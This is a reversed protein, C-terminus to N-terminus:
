VFPSWANEENYSRLVRVYINSLIYCVFYILLFILVSDHQQFIDRSQLNVGKTAIGSVSSAALVCTTFATISLVVRFISESVSACQLTMINSISQLNAICTALQWRTDNASVAIQRCNDEDHPLEMWRSVRWPQWWDHDATSHSTHLSCNAVRAYSWFLFSLYLSPRWSSNLGNITFIVGHETRWLLMLRNNSSVKVLGMRCYLVAM